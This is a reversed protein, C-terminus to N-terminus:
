DHIIIKKLKELQKEDLPKSFFDKVFAYSNVKNKDASMLSSSLMIITDVKIGKTKMVDMMGFADMGPMNIDLLICDPAGGAEIFELAEQGDYAQVVEILDGFEKELLFKNYFQETENDEVLLLTYKKM